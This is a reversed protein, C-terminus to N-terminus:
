ALGRFSPAGELITLAGRPMGPSAGKRGLCDFKCTRPAPSKPSRPAHASKAVCAGLLANYRLPEINDVLWRNMRVDRAQKDSFASKPSQHRLIFYVRSQYLRYFSNLRLSAQLIFEAAIISSNECSCVGVLLVFLRVTLTSACALRPNEEYFQHKPCLICITSSM